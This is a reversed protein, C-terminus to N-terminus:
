DRGLLSNAVVQNMRRKISQSDNYYYVNDAIYAGAGMWNAYEDGDMFHSVGNMWQRLGEEVSESYRIRDHVFDYLKEQARRWHTEPTQDWATGKSREYLKYAVRQLLGHIVPHTDPQASHIENEIEVISILGAEAIM